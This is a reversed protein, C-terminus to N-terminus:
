RKSHKAITATMIIIIIWVTNARSVWVTLWDIIILQVINNAFHHTAEYFGSNGQRNMLSSERLYMYLEDISAGIYKRTVNNDQDMVDWRRHIRSEM